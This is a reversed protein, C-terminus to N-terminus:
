TYSASCNLPGKRTCLYAKCSPVHQMVTCLQSRVVAHLMAPILCIEMGIHSGFRILQTAISAVCVYHLHLLFCVSVM